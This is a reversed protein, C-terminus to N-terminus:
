RASRREVGQRATRDPPSGAPSHHIPQQGPLDSARNQRLAGYAIAGIVLGLGLSQSVTFGQGLLVWGLLAGTMPAALGLLPPAVPALRAIGRFWLAFAVATGVVALYTFGVINRVELSPPAGEVVLALPILVVGALTLQWGTDTIRDAPAPLRRTLVVGAAFSLNAGVGAAVGVLDVQGGPRLVVLAVGVAATISVAVDVVRPLRRDLLGTMTLVLLPQLGGLAAAVGGPLRYAAVVLLPFFVVFNTASLVMLRVRAGAAPRRRSRIVGFGLLLLGAPAVRLAALLLPRDPPLLETVTVYTTGWSIPAVLTALAVGIRRDEAM